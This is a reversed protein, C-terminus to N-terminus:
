RPARDADRLRMLGLAVGATWLVYIGGVMREYAGRWTDDVFLFMPIMWLWLGLCVASFIGLRPVQRSLGPQLAGMATGTLSAVIWLPLNSPAAAGPSATAFDYAVYCLGVGAAVLLTRAVPWLRGRDVGRLAVALAVHALGFVVLGVGHLSGWRHRSLEGVPTAVPDQGNVVLVVLHIILTTATSALAIRLWM